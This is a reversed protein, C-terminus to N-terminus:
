CRGPCGRRVNVGPKIGGGSTAQWWCSSDAFPGPLLGIVHEVGGEPDTAFDLGAPEAVGDVDIGLSRRAAPAYTAHRGPKEIYRRVDHNRNITPLPEGRLVFRRYDRSVHDLAGAVDDFSAVPVQVVSFFYGCDYPKVIRRDASTKTAQYGGGKCRLVTLADSM